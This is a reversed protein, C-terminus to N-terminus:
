RLEGFSSHHSCGTDSHSFPRIDSKISESQRNCFGQATKIEDYAKEKERRALYRQRKHASTRLVKINEDVYLYIRSTSAKLRDLFATQAKFPVALFVASFQQDYFGALAAQRTCILLNISGTHLDEFFQQREIMSHDRTLIGPKISRRELLDALINSHHPTSTLILCPGNEIEKIVDNIILINRDFDALLENMLEHYELAPDRRSFFDTHRIILDLGTTSKIDMNSEM